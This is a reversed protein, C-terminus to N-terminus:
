SKHIEIIKLIPTAKDLKEQSFHDFFLIGNLHDCEHQIARAILGGVRKKIIKNGKLDAAEFDITESRLVDDYFQPISLCGEQMWVKKKSSWTIKPNCYIVPDITVYEGNKVAGESISLAFMSIAFGIQPAALGIGSSKCNKLTDCLDKAVLTAEQSPLQVEPCIKRLIPNGLYCFDRIM